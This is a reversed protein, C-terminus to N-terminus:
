GTPGEKGEVLQAPALRELQFKAILAIAPNRLIPFNEPDAYVVAFGFSRLFDGNRTDNAAERWIARIQEDDLAQAPTLGLAQAYAHAAQESEFNCIQVNGCIPVWRFGSWGYQDSESLVIISRGLWEKVVYRALLGKDMWENM